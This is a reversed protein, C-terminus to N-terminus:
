SSVRGQEQPTWITQAILAIADDPGISASLQEHLRGLNEMRANIFDHRSTGSALGHLGQQAAEYEAQIQQRIRSVDSNSM